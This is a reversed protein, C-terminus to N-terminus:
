RPPAAHNRSGLALAEICVMRVQTGPKTPLPKEDVGFTVRGYRGAVITQEPAHISLSADTGVALQGFRAVAVITSSLTMAGSFAASAMFWGDSWSKAKQRPTVKKVVARRHNLRSGVVAVVKLAEEPHL